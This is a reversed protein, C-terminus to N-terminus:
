KMFYVWVYRSFDDIFTVMYKMGGISAQKVPGFADSHVLELPEKAKFKSEEYPLQHAKGYQCRACVTDIKVELQPLGRLMSRKMMMNLKSYNVHSLRMHWLDATENRRTKDVYANEASTVYVSEVRRGKMVPKEMIELNRCVKVDHPSFLVFHGTSTLQSVSLLNKKMGPVHYVSQLQVIGDSYQSPVVTCGISAIPLKSNNATVVIRNEKYEFLNQLKEKDDTMHNLCGSDIIWDKEHDIYESTTATFAFADTEAVFLAEADWEEESKSTATNSEVTKKKSWCARAM